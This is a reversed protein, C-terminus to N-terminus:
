RDIEKERERDCVCVGVPWAAFMHGHSALTDVVSRSAGESRMESKRTTMSALMTM